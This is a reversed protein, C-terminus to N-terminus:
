AAVRRLAATLERKLAQLALKRLASLHYKHAIARPTPISESNISSLRKRMHASINGWRHVRDCALDLRNVTRM